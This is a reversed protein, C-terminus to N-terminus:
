FIFSLDEKVFEALATDKQLAEVYAQGDFLLYYKSCASAVIIQSSKTGTKKTKKKYDFEHVVTGVMEVHNKSTFNLRRM